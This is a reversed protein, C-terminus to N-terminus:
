LKSKKKLIYLIKRLPLIFLAKLRWKKDIAKRDGVFYISYILSDVIKELITKFPKNGFVKLRKNQKILQKKWEFFLKFEKLSIFEKTYLLKTLFSDTFKISDYELKKYLNLKIIIDNQLQIKKFKTSVQNQHTRYYYLVEQLNHMKCIWATRAWFDYDEVHLMEKKFNFDKYALRNLMTAGLSMPNSLLLQAKIQEHFEKHKIEKDYAGFSKLWSGCVKIERNKELFNYQKEFRDLANIDDGDVRAIYKGNAEKFGINLSDILGKNEEKKIIRIRADKYSTIVNITNDTSCDDIVIIEFDQFTQNLISDMCASIYKEVNYVPLVVSVLPNM